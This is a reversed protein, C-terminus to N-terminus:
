APLIGVRWTFECYSSVCLVLRSNTRPYGGGYTNPGTLDRPGPYSARPSQVLRPRSRAQFATAQGPQNTYLPQAAGLASIWRAVASLQM